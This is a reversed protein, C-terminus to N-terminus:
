RVTVIRCATNGNKVSTTQTIFLSELFRWILRENESLLVYIFILNVNVSPLFYTFIVPSWLCWSELKKKVALVHKRGCLIESSFLLTGGAFLHSRYCYSVPFDNCTEPCYYTVPSIQARHTKTDILKIASMRCTRCMQPVNSWFPHFVKSM